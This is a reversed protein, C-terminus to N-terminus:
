KDKRFSLGKKTNVLYDLAKGIYNYKEAKEPPLVFSILAQLLVLLSLITGQIVDLYQLWEM